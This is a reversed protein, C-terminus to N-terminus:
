RKADPEDDKKDPKEVESNKELFAQLGKPSPVNCGVSDEAMIFCHLIATASFSFISLFLSAVVYAVFAVLIAPVFPQEVEPYASKMYIITGYGTVGMITGKGLLMMIWGVMAASSFKGVHRVILFFSNKASVCFNTNHLACQIFANKTIFKVYADLLCLVCRICCTVAKFVPNNKNMAEQQKALYEFVVRIMTVVAICFAGFSITGCHYWAGWTMGKLVSVEGTGDQDADGQGFFYWMCTCAAIIFQQLCIFFSVVWFLGFLFYWMIYRNAKDWVINATFSNPKFETTGISYVMVATVTWYAFFALVLVYSLIPLLVIRLNGAVFESAAEMITAGLSINRWCCLMFCFYLVAIAWSVGAGITAYDYNKKQAVPDYESRKMWSWGGLLIFCILIILMSVYLLPKTIIKLLWIYIVTIVVSALCMYLMGKWCHQIDTAYKAFTGFGESNELEKKVATYFEKALAKDPSCFSTGPFLTTGYEKLVIKVVPCKYDSDKNGVCDPAKGLAPCEKVCVSKYLSARKVGKSEIFESLSIFHRYPYNTFDTTAGGKLLKNQGPQGCQNGVSDFPTIIKHPDGKTLGYGTIGIM